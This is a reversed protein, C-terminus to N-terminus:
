TLSSNSLIVFYRYVFTCYFSVKVFYGVAANSLLKIAFLSNEQSEQYDLFVKVEALYQPDYFFLIVLLPHTYENWREEDLEKVNTGALKETIELHIAAGNSGRVSQKQIM